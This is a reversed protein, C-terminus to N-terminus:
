PRRRSTPAIGSLYGGCAAQLAEIYDALHVPATAPAYRRRMTARPGLRFKASSLEVDGGPIGAGHSGTRSRCLLHAGPGNLYVNAHLPFTVRYNVQCFESIEAETGPEQHMLQDCPFGLVRLGRDGYREHLAQLGAYQPTLGCRSATNVVLVVSGLHEALPQPRGSITTATFDALTTMDGNHGPGALCGSSGATPGQVPGSRARRC